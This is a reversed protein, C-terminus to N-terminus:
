AGDARAADAAALHGPRVGAAASAAGPVLTGDPRAGRRGRDARAPHVGAENLVLPADGDNRVVQRLRLVGTACPTSRRLLRPSASPRGRGAAGALGRRPLAHPDTPCSRRLLRPPATPRARRRDHRPRGAAGRGLARGARPRRHRGLRRRGVPAGDPWPSRTAGSPSRTAPDGPRLLAAGHLRGRARGRRRRAIAQRGRQGHVDRAGRRRVAQRRRRQLGRVGGQRRRGDGAPRRDRLDAADRLRAARDRGAQGPHAALRSRRRRRARLREAAPRPDGPAARRGAALRGAAPPRHRRLPRPRRRDQGGRPEDCALRHLGGRVPQAAQQLPEAAHRGAPAAGDRMVAVREGLTMAEVQDHTVYVTTVGLREHLRALEARMSVRLKADLNSLPEDM